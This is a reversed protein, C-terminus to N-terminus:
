KYWCEPLVLPSKNANDRDLRHPFTQVFSECSIRDKRVFTLESVHPLTIDGIKTFGDNNNPHNHVCRHTQLLKEFARTVLDFWPNNWLLYLHHFEVIIIRFRKLLQDSVGLLVEYEAGEIDMQLMLEDQSGPLSANVWQDLTMFEESTTVGVFKNTFEFLRHSEPPNEVSRDALFVQMGLNACDREFGSIRAVGPSFCAKIGALDDPVLYGGDTDPGLRILPKDCSVPRLRNLLTQIKSNDTQLAPYIKFIVLLKRILREISSVM